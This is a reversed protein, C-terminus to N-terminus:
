KKQGMKKLRGRIADVTISYGRRKLAEAVQDNTQGAGRLEVIAWDAWAREVQALAEVWAREVLALPALPEAQCNTKPQM